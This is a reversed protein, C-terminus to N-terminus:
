IKRKAQIGVSMLKGYKDDMDAEDNCTVILQYHKKAEKKLLQKLTEEISQPPFFKVQTKSGDLQWREFNNAIYEPDDYAAESNRSFSYAKYLAELSVYHFAIVEHDKVIEGDLIAYFGQDDQGYTLINCAVEKNSWGADERNLWRNNGDIIMGDPIILFTSHNGMLMDHLLMEKGEKTLIRHNEPNIKLTEINRTEM